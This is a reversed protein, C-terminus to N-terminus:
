FLFDVAEFHQKGQYEIAVNLGCIFIDYSMQGGKSSKLFFPRHQYIVKYDKYIRKTTRYVYEETVWRNSPRIYSNKEILDFEGNHARKLLEDAYRWTEEFEKTYKEIVCYKLHDELRSQRKLSKWGNLANEFDWSYDRRTNGNCFIGTKIYNKGMMNVYSSPPSMTYAVVFHKKGDIDDLEFVIFYYHNGEWSDYREKLKLDPYLRNMQELYSEEDPAWCFRDMGRFKTYFVCSGLLDIHTLKEMRRVFDANNYKWGLVNYTLEVIEMDYCEDEENWTNLFSNAKEEDTKKNLATSLPSILFRACVIHSDEIIYIREKNNLDRKQVNYGSFSKEFESRLFTITEYSLRPM